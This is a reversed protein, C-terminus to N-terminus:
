HVSWGTPLFAVSSLAAVAVVVAIVLLRLGPDRLAARWHGFALVAASM